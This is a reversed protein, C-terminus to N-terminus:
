SKAFESLASCISCAAVGAGAFLPRVAFVRNCRGVGLGELAGTATELQAAVEVKRLSRRAASNGHLAM